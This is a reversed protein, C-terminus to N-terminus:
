NYNEESSASTSTKGLYIYKNVLWILSGFYSPFTLMLDTWRSLFELKTSLSMFIDGKNVLGEFVLKGGAM